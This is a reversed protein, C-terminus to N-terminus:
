AFDVMNFLPLHRFKRKPLMSRVTLVAQPAAHHQQHSQLFIVSFIENRVIMDLFYWTLWIGDHFSGCKARSGYSGSGQYLKEDLKLM